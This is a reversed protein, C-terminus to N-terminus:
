EYWAALIEDTHNKADPKTIINKIKGKDDILFTTRHIGDYVKGMFKKTGWVGYKEAISHDEDAVLAFPLEYKDEFKKHKKAPDPSIGIIEFGDQLLNSYNDRLNCAQATCTPTDDKPYFYIIVNKGAYDKLAIAEGNQDIGTFAPAKKGATLNGFPPAAKENAM